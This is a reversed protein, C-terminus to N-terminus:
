KLLELIEFLGFRFIALWGFFQVLKAPLPVGRLHAERFFPYYTLHDAFIIFSIPILLVFGTVLASTFGDNIM